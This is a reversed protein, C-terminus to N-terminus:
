DHNGVGHEVRSAPDFNARWGNALAEEHKKILMAKIHVSKELRMRVDAQYILAWAKPNAKAMTRIMKMNRDLRGQDILNKMIAGTRFCGYSAEWAEYNPPGYIEVLVLEGDQNLVRGHFRLRKVMRSWFPVWLAFDAYTKRMVTVM